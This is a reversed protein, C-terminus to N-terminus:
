CKQTLIKDFKLSDAKKETEFNAILIDLYLKNELKSM